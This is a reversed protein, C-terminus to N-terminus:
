KTVAHIESLRRQIVYKRESGSGLPLMWDFAELIDPHSLVIDLQKHIFDKVESAGESIEELLESRNDVIHVIDELDKSLRIDDMGRSQLAELKTAIYYIPLLIRITTADPLTYDM